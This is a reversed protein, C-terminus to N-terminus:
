LRNRTTVFSSNFSFYSISQGGLPTTTTSSSLKVTSARFSRLVITKDLYSASATSAFKPLGLSSISSTMALTSTPSKGSPSFGKFPM